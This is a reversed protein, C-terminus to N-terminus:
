TRASRRRRAAALAVLGSGLLWLGAPEPVSTTRTTIHLTSYILAAGNFDEIVVEGPDFIDPSEVPGRLGLSVSVSGSALSALVSGLNVTYVDYVSSAGGATEFATDAAGALDNGAVDFSDVQSGPSGADADYLGLELSAAVIEGGVPAFLFTWGALFNEIPDSGYGQDFPAPQGDQAAIIDFITVEQGPVLDSATNGLSIEIQAAAAPGAGALALAACLWHVTRGAPRRATSSQM